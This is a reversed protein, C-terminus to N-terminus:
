ESVAVVNGLKHQLNSDSKAIKRVLNRVTANKSHKMTALSKYVQVRVSPDSDKTMEILRQATQFDHLMGFAEAVRARHMPEPDHSDRILANRILNKDLSLLSLLAERRVELSQHVVLQYIKPAAEKLIVLKEAYAEERKEKPKANGISKAMGGFLAITNFYFLDPSPRTLRDLLAPLAKFGSLQVLTHATLNLDDESQEEMLLNALLPVTDAPGGFEALANLTLKKLSTKITIPDENEGVPQKIEVERSFEMATVIKESLSFPYRMRLTIPHGIPYKSGEVYNKLNPYLLLATEAIKEEMLTHATFIQVKLSRDKLGEKFAQVVQQDKLGLSALSQYASLRVKESPNKTLPLLYRTAESGALRPAAFAIIKQNDESTAGNAFQDLLSVMEGHSDGRQAAAVLVGSTLPPIREALLLLDKIEPIDRSDSTMILLNRVSEIIGKYREMWDPDTKAGSQQILYAVMPRLTKSNELREKLFDVLKKGGDLLMLDYIAILTEPFLNPFQSLAAIYSEARAVLKKINKTRQKEAIDDKPPQISVLMQLRLDQLAKVYQIPELHSPAKEALVDLIRQRLVLNSNKRLLGLYLKGTEDPDLDFLFVLAEHPLNSPASLLTLLKKGFKAKLEPDVRCASLIKKQASKSQFLQPALREWHTLVTEALFEETIKKRELAYLYEDLKQSSRSGVAAYLNENLQQGLEPPVFLDPEIAEDTVLLSLPLPSGVPEEKNESIFYALHPDENEPQYIHMAPDQAAEKWCLMREKTEEPSIRQNCEKILEKKTLLPSPPRGPRAELPLPAGPLPTKKSLESNYKAYYEPAYFVSVGKKPLETKKKLGEKDYVSVFRGDSLGMEVQYDRCIEKGDPSQHCAATVQDLFGDRNFDFKKVIKTYFDGM